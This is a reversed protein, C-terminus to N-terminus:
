TEYRHKKLCWHEQKRHISKEIYRRKEKSTGDGSLSHRSGLGMSVLMSVLYLSVLRWIYVHGWRSTKYTHVQCFKMEPISIHLNTEKYRTEMGLGIRGRPLNQDRLSALHFSIRIAAGGRDEGIFANNQMTNM